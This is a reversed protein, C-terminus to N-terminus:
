PEKADCRPSPQMVCVMFSLKMARLNHFCENNILEISLM